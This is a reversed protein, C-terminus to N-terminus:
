AGEIEHSDIRYRRGETPGPGRKLLNPMEARKGVRKRTM